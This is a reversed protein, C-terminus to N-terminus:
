HLIGIEIYAATQIENFFFIFNCVYCIDKRQVGNKLIKHKRKHFITLLYIIHVLQSLTYEYM